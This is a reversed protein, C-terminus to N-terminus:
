GAQVLRTRTGARSHNLFQHRRVSADRVTLALSDPRTETTDITSGSVAAVEYGAPLRVDFTRAEGRAVNIDVLVVM